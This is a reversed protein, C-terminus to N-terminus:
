DPVRLVFQFERGDLEEQRVLDTEDIAMDRMRGDGDHLKLTIRILEPWWPTVTRDYGFIEDNDVGRQWSAGDFFEVKFSACNPAIVSSTLMAQDRINAAGMDVTSKGYIRFCAEEEFSGSAILQRIDLMSGPLVDWLGSRIDEVDWINEPADPDPDSRGPIILLAHRGLIWDKTDGVPPNTGSDDKALHGYWVRAVNAQESRKLGDDTIFKQSTWPGNAFFMLQDAPIYGSGAATDGPINRMKIVMFGDRSIRRFDDRLIRELAQAQTMVSGVATAGGISGQVQSLVVSVLILILLLVPVAM